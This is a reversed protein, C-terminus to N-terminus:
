KGKSRHARVLAAYWRDSTEGVHQDTGDRHRDFGSEHAGSSESARHRAFDVEVVEARDIALGVVGNALDDVSVLDSEEWFCKNAMSRDWEIMLLTGGPAVADAATKLVKGRREGAPPLAYTSIVLDFQRLPVWEAADAIEFRIDLGEAEARARAQRIAEDAWDVSTVKWGQKALYTSNVGLGCGLDLATGPPLGGVERVLLGEPEFEAPPAEEIYTSNWFERDFTSDTHQM